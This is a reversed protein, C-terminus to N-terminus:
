KEREQRRERQRVRSRTQGASRTVPLERDGPDVRWTVASRVGAEALRARVAEFAACWQQEREVDLRRDNEDDPASTRVLAARIQATGGAGGAGTGGDPRATAAESPEDVRMRVGHQPWGDRTLFVAGDQVSLTEFGTDVHYGLEEFAATVNQLVYRREDEARQRAALEAARRHAARHRDATNRNATQVRLRVETLLGAAEPETAAGPVRGAAQRIAALDDDATDPSLRSLVRALDAAREAAAEATPQPADASSEPNAPAAPDLDAELRAAPVAFLRGAERAALRERLRREAADLERDTDACWAALEDHSAGALREAPLVDPLDVGLEARRLADGLVEIRANRELVTHLTRELEQAAALAAARDAARAETLAALAQAGGGALGAAGGLLRNLGLTLVVAADLAIDAEVGSSM